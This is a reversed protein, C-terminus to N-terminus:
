AAAEEVPYQQVLNLDIHLEKYCNAIQDAASPYGGPNPCRLCDGGCKLANPDTSAPDIMPEFKDLNAEILNMNVTARANAYQENNSAPEGTVTGGDEAAPVAGSHNAIMVRLDEGKIGQTEMGLSKALEVLDKRTMGALVEASPIEGPTIVTQVATPPASVPPASPAPASAPPMPRSAPPRGPPRGVPRKEVGNAAPTTTQAVTAAVPAPTSPRPVPAHGGGLMPLAAEYYAAAANYYRLKASRIITDEKDAVVPKAQAPVQQAAPPRAAPPAAAPAAVRQPPPAPPRQPQPAVPPAVRAPPPVPPAPPRTLPM